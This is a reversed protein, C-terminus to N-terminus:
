LSTGSLLRGGIHCSTCRRRDCYEQKLQILAQSELASGADFGCRSWQRIIRNAEAPLQQMMVMVRDRLTEDGTYAARWMLYPFVANILLLQLSAMSMGHRGTKGPRDFHIHQQWYASPPTHLYSSLSLTDPCALIGALLHEHRVLLAALQAIRVPPQAAPRIRGTQWMGSPIPELSFKRRLYGYEASLRRYYPDTIDQGGLYGAQGFLLAELLVPDHRLQLIIRHPITRFLALLAEKNAQQGFAGALVILFTAEQDHALSQSVAEIESSKRMLREVALSDLWIHKSLPDIRYLLQECPIWTQAELLQQYTDTIAPSVLRNLELCPIRSGDARLVPRDEEWVVHLIVNDYRKDSDHNHRYWESSRVHIEVHGAWRTDSLKIRAFEFDPGAHINQRGTHEIQLDAGETTRLHHPDFRKTRWIFHLLEEKM